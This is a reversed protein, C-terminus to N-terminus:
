SRAPSRPPELGEDRVLFFCVENPTHKKNHLILHVQVRFPMLTILFGLHSEFLSHYLAVSFPAATRRAFALTLGEDRVM